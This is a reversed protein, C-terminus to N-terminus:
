WIWPPVPLLLWGGVWIGVGGCFKKALGAALVRFCAGSLVCAYASAYLNLFPFPFLSALFFSFWIECVCGGGGVGSLPVCVSLSLSLSLLPIFVFLKSYAFLLCRSLFQGITVLGISYVRPASEGVLGGINVAKVDLFATITTTQVVDSHRVWRLRWPSLVQCFETLLTELLQLTHAHDNLHLSAYTWLGLVMIFILLKELRYNKKWRDLFNMLWFARARDPSLFQNPPCVEWRRHGRSVHAISLHRRKAVTRLYADM